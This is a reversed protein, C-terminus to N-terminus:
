LERSVQALRHALERYGQLATRLEETGTADSQWGDRLSQERNKASAVLAALAGGTVQAARTVATRPDDVFLAQIEPWNDDAQQVRDPETRGPEALSSVGGAPQSVQGVGAPSAPGANPEAASGSGPQVTSGSGPQVTSGPGPQVTSGPGPQVTSGPGPQVTSGSGPMAFPGSGPMAFPGSGPRAAPDAGTQDNRASQGLASQGLASQALASERDPEEGSIGRASPTLDDDTELDDEDTELSDEDTELDDDDTELGGDPLEKEASDAAHAGASPPDVLHEETVVIVDDDM